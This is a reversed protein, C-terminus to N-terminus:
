YICLSCRSCAVQHWTSRPSDPLGVTKPCSLHPWLFTVQWQHFSTGGLPVSRFLMTHGRVPFPTTLSPKRASPSRLRGQPTSAFYVSLKPLLCPYPHRHCGTQIPSRHRGLLFLTAATTIPRSHGHPSKSRERQRRRRSSKRLLTTLITGTTPKM